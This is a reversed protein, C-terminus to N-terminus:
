RTAATDVLVLGGSRDRRGIDAFGEEAEPDAKDAFLDM